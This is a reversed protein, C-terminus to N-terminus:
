RLENKLLNRLFSFRNESEQMNIVTQTMKIGETNLFRNEELTTSECKRRKLVKVSNNCKRAYMASIKFVSRLGIKKVKYTVHEKYRLEWFVKENFRHNQYVTKTLTRRICRSRETHLKRDKREPFHVPIITKIIEEIKKSQNEKTPDGM